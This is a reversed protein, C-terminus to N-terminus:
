PETTRRLFQPELRRENERTQLKAGTPQLRGLEQAINALSRDGMVKQM